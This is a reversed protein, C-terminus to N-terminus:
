VFCYLRCGKMFLQAIGFWVTKKKLRKKYLTFMLTPRLYPLNFNNEFQGNDVQGRSFLYARLFFFFNSTPDESGVTVESGRCLRHSLGFISDSVTIYINYFDILFVKTDNSMVTYWDSFIYDFEFFLILEDSYFVHLYIVCKNEIDLTQMRKAKYIVLQCEYDCQIKQLSLNLTFVRLVDPTYCQLNVQMKWVLTYLHLKPEVNKIYYNFMIPIVLFYCVFQHYTTYTHQLCLIPM